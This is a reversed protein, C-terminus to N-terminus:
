SKDQPHTPSELVQKVAEWLADCLEEYDEYECYKTDLRWGTEERRIFHIDEGLFEIMQGISLLPLYGYTDNSFKYYIFKSDDRSLNSKIVWERLREKGKDSLEKIQEKSIHQKM